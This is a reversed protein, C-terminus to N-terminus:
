VKPDIDVAIGGQYVVEPSPAMGSSITNLYNRAWTVSDEWNRDRYKQTPEEPVEEGKGLRAYGIIDDWHDPTNPDGSLIRAIKLAIMELAELQRPSLHKSRGRIILTRLMQSIHAVDTFNGHTKQRESLIDTM